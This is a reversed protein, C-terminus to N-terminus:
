FFVLFRYMQELFRYKKKLLLDTILKATFAYFINNNIM